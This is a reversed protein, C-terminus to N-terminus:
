REAFARTDNDPRDYGGVGVNRGKGLSEGIASIDNISGSHHALQSLMVQWQVKM